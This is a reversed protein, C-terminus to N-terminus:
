QRQLPLTPLLPVVTRRVDRGDGGEGHWALPARSTVTRFLNMPARCEIALVLQDVGVGELLEVAKPFLSPQELVKIQGPESRRWGRVSVTTM